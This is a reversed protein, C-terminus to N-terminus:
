SKSPSDLMAFVWQSHTKVLFGSPTPEISQPWEGTLRFIALDGKSSPVTESRTPGYLTWNGSTFLGSETVPLTNAKQADNM